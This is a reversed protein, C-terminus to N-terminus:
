MKATHQSPPPTSQGLNKIFDPVDLSEGNMQTVQGDNSFELSQLVGSDDHFTKPEGHIYHEIRGSGDENYEIIAPVTVTHEDKTFQFSSPKGESDEFRFSATGEKSQNAHMTVDLNKLDNESLGLTELFMKGNQYNNDELRSSLSAIEEPLNQSMLYDNLQM